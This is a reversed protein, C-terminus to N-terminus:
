GQGQRHRRSGATTRDGGSITIAGSPCIHAARRAAAHHQPPPAPDLLVVHGDEADQDFVEPTTLVCM